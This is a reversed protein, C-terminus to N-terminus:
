KVTVKWEPEDRATPVSAAVGPVCVEESFGNPAGGRVKVEAKVQPTTEDPGVNPFELTGANVAGTVKQGQTRYTVKFESPPACGGINFDDQGRIDVNTYRFFFKAEKGQALKASAGQGAGSNNIVGAGKFANGKRKVEGDPQATSTALATAAVLGALAAVSGLALLRRRM